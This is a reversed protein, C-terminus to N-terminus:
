TERKMRHWQSRPKGFLLVDISQVKLVQAIAVLNRLIPLRRGSLYGDITGYPIGTARSLDAPSMGRCEMLVRIRNGIEKADPEPYWVPPRTSQKISM